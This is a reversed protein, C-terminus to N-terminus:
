CDLLYNRMLKTNSNPESILNYRKSFKTKKTTWLKLQTKLKEEERQAKLIETGFVFWYYLFHFFVLLLIFTIWALKLKVMFVCTISFGFWVM